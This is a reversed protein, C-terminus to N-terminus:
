VVILESQGNGKKHVQIQTPIREHMEQVHTIVTVKRGQGQLRDLADMVIQLSDPDLTGFGEDIFLSEIRLRNSAMEALGLALALSVLFSEGGSLSHVSRREDGMDTDIVLLGLSGAARELQYRRSLQELQLNADDLLRDLFYEQAYKQFKKGESDAIPSAMRDFRLYAAYALDHEAQLSSARAKCDDDQKLQLQLTLWQQRSQELQDATTTIAFDLDTELIPLNEAARQQHHDLQQQHVQLRTESETLATQAQHLQAKIQQEQEPTVALLVAFADASMGPHQLHWANIRQLVTTLAQEGDQIQASRLDRQSTTGQLQQELQQNNEQQTKLLLRAQTQRDDLQSQWQAVSTINGGLSTAARLLLASLQTQNSQLEHELDKCQQSLQLQTGQQQSQQQALLALSHSLTKLQEQQQVIAAQQALRQEMQHEIRQLTHGLDTRWQQQLTSDLYDWFHLEAEQLQHDLASHRQSLTQWAYQAQTHSLRSQELQKLLAQETAIHQELTTIQQQLTQETTQNTAIQTKLWAQRADEETSHNRLETAFPLQMLALKQAKEESGRQGLEQGLQELQKNILDRKTVLSSQQMQATSLQLRAQQEQQEDESQMAELVHTTVYPHDHSGCVPCPQDPLLQNRLDAVSKSRALRQGALVKLLANLELEAQQVDKQAQLLLPALSDRQKEQETYKNKLDNILAWLHRYGQYQQSLAQLQQDTQRCILLQQKLGDLQVTNTTESGFQLQHTTLAATHKELQTVQAKLATEHEPLKSTLQQIELSCREADRMRTLKAPWNEDLPALIQSQKLELTLQELATQGQQQQAQQAAIALQRSELERSLQVLQTELETRTHNLRSIEHELQAARQLEPKTSIIQSEIAAAAQEAARYAEQASRHLVQTQEVQQELIAREQQQQAITAMLEQQRRIDPRIGHLQELQQAQMRVSALSHWTQSSQDVALRSSEIQLALQNRQVYWGQTKSLGDQYRTLQDRQQNLNSLGHELAQRQEDDLAVLGGMQTKIQQWADHYQKRKEHALKGIRCYIETALLRELLQAREADSAKLFAGFESQALMVARTFQEFSLGILEAIRTDTERIQSTLTQGTAEDRLIREAALLRGDSKDRARRVQWSASYERGDQGVFLVEAYGKATGRRLLTRPDHMALPDNSPGDPVKGEQGKSASRLRPVQGFLALCLADLITSKGSGTPGTIAMLGASALPETRYDLTQEGALSALNSLKLRLIKM